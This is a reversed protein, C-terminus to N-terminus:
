RVVLVDTEVTRVLSEAVSGLLARGVGTRGHTGVVLLDAERAAAERAIVRRPDGLYLHKMLPVGVDPLGALWSTLQHSAALESDRVFTELDSPSWGSNRLLPVYPAHFAHVVDVVSPQSLRLAWEVALESQPSFDVAAMPRGYGADPTKGAVLVSVGAHRVIREASSGIIRESVGHRQGRGVVILEARGLRAERELLEAAPAAELVLSIEVAPDGCRAREAALTEEAHHLLATAEERVHHELAGHLDTPLAHVITVRCGRGIPLWATRAVADHSHRQFDTGVVVDGIPRRISERDM